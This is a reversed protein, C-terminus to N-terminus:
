FYFHRHEVQIKETDAIEGIFRVKVKHLSPWFTAHIIPRFSQFKPDSPMKWTDPYVYFGTQWAGPTAIEGYRRGIWGGSTWAGSVGSAAVTVQNPAPISIIRYLGIFGSIGQVGYVYIWRGVDMGHNGNTTITVTSSTYTLGTIGCVEM